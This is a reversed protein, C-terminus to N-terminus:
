AAKGLLRRVTDLSTRVAEVDHACDESQGAHKSETLFYLVSALKVEVGALGVAPTTALTGYIDTIEEVLRRTEEESAGKAGAAEERGTIEKALRSLEADDGAPRAMEALPLAKGAMKKVMALITEREALDARDVIAMIGAVVELKDLAHTSPLALKTLVDAATTATTEAIARALTNCRAEAAEADAPYSDEIAHLEALM